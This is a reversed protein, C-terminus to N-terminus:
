LLEEDDFSPTLSSLCLLCVVESDDLSDVDNVLLLELEIVVWSDSSACVTGVSILMSVITSDTVEFFKLASDDLFVRGYLAM